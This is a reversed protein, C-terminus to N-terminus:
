PLFAKPEPIIASCPTFTTTAIGIGLAITLVAVVAFGPRKAFQRLAFRLDSVM